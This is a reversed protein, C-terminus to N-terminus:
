KKSITDAIKEKLYIGMEKQFEESAIKKIIPYKDLTQLFEELLDDTPAISNLYCRRIKKVAPERQFSLFSEMEEQSLKEVLFEIVGEKYMSLYLTRENEPLLAFFSKKTYIQTFNSEEFAEQAINKKTEYQSVCGITSFCIGFFLMLYINKM